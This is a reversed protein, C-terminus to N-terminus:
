SQHPLGVAAASQGRREAAVVLFGYGFVFLNLGIQLDLVADVMMATGQLLIFLGIAPQRRMRPQTLPWLLVSLWLALGVVGGGLLAQLYQNHVEARNAPRLGFDKWQYQEMMAAQTDAPGVGILWHQSVIAKATKVAALRRAQSYNNIDHGEIFQQVDWATSSTRQRVSELTHYALWPGLGLLVFVGVGVALRRRALLWGAVALVGTYLVLLGTRYALVHLTLAAAAAAGLLAARLVPGALQNRRLLLGWFFALALMLGFTIHFIRTIAPMNQGVRIANNARAPDLAYQGLTALGVAAVGLVFLAGVALRQRATLPVALAFALPVALWTLSRFLEHRWTPWDQTYCGSLLLFGVIAAGRMAAGNRFYTPIARRLGPNALVALVGVVPSIGVLARAALLGVVGALCALWLLHQSLRGSLYYQVFSISLVSPPAGPRSGAVPWCM